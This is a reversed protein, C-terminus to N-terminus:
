KSIMTLIEEELNRKVDEYEEIQARYKNPDKKMDLVFSICLMYDKCLDRFNEDALFLFEIKEEFDPFLQVISHMNEKMNIHM